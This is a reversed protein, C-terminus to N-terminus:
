RADPDKGLLREELDCCNICKDPDTFRRDGRGGTKQGNGAYLCGPEGDALLKFDVWTLSRGCWECVYSRLPTGEAMPRSHVVTIGEILVISLVAARRVEAESVELHEADAEAGRM